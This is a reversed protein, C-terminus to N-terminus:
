PLDFETSQLVIGSGRRVLRDPVFVYNESILPEGEADCFSYTEVLEWVMFQIIKGTKGTVSKTFTETSSESVSVSSSFIESLTGAVTGSLVGFDLGIEATVSRGFEETETRTTGSSYSTSVEGATQPYILLYDAAEGELPQLEWHRDRRVFVPVELPAGTFSATVSGIPNPGCYASGHVGEYTLTRPAGDADLFVLNRTQVMGVLFRYDQPPLYEIERSWAAAPILPQVDGLCDKVGQWVGYANFVKPRFTTNLKEVRTMTASTAPVDGGPTAPEPIDPVDVFNRTGDGGGGPVPVTTSDSCGAILLAVTLVALIAPKGLPTHSTNM